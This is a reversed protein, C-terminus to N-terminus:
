FTPEFHYNMKWMKDVVEWAAHSVITNDAYYLTVRIAERYKDEWKNAEACISNELKEMKKKDNEFEIKWPNFWIYEQANEEKLACLHHAIKSGMESFRNDYHNNFQQICSFIQEPTRNIWRLRSESVKKLSKEKDQQEEKKIRRLQANHEKKCKKDNCHKVAKYETTFTNNCGLCGWLTKSVSEDFDDTEEWDIPFPANTKILEDMEEPKWVGYMNKVMDPHFKRLHNFMARAQFEKKCCPCKENRFTASVSSANSTSRSDDSESASQTQKIYENLSAMTKRYEICLFDKLWKPRAYDAGAPRLGSRGSTTREQRAYLLADTL